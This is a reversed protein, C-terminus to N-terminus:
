VHVEEEEYYSLVKRKELYNPTMRKLFMHFSVKERMGELTSVISKCNESRQLMVHTYQLSSSLNDTNMLVVGLQMLFYIFLVKSKRKFM